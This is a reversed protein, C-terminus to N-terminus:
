PASRCSCSAGGRDRRDPRRVHLVHRHRRGQGDRRRPAGRGPDRRRLRALHGDHRVAGPLARRRPARDAGGGLRDARPPHDRRLGPHRRARHYAVRHYAGAYERAELEAQAVATQFTVDWLTPAQQLYAEGRAFNRLFARQSVLQSKPGITTYDQKWDVSLGLTRWLAEFSRRTRSRRAARLARRLQAPSIPVQRKPDPKEPPRSTRTTRCRRTAACATTTRCGASPPCATTTGAWRTSSRSAGCGSSAPSWTPTPTPSSTGSTCRAAVGDAAPHRDLLDGRAAQHPRVRLHRRGELARVVQGRPGGAGAQGTRRRRARREDVAGTGPRALDRDHLSIRRDPCESGRVPEAPREHAATGVHVQRRPLPSVCGVSRRTRGHLGVQTTRRAVAGRRVVPHAGPGAPGVVAGPARCRRHRGM